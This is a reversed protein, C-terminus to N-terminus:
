GITAVHKTLHTIIKFIGLEGDCCFLYVVSLDVNQDDGKRKAKETGKECNSLLAYM